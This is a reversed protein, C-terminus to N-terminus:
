RKKWTYKKRAGAQGPKKREHKRYDRQLLGAIRMKEVMDQTVFSRLGHAIGWRIAGSQGSPGGGAVTAEVDVSGIMNTFILPFLLQERDQIHEFYEISKNNITILGTGPSRVTVEGRASKRLCEKITVYARGDASYQPKPIDYATSQSLIPKRFKEIFDKLRYSYPHQILREMVYILNSYERDSLKEVLIIEFQSKPLWVSGSTSMAQTADPILHKKIMKDEFDNLSNTHSVLDHLLQYLNPRGTYFLFHHPRGSEDFEAAKRPPFVEDPPKMLPRAKPEFLGSPFLYEIARDIDEQMFTEPDEGMMNALHRKGINYQLLQEKLFEDHKQARELYARM